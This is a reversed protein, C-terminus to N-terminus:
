LHVQQALFFLIPLFHACQFIASTKLFTNITERTEKSRRLLLNAKQEMPSVKDNLDKLLEMGCDEMAEKFMKM